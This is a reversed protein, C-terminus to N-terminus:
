YKVIRQSLRRGDAHKVMLIYTGQPLHGISIRETIQNVSQRHLRQGQLSYLTLETKGLYEPEIEINVFDSAPNPYVKITQPDLLDEAADPNEEVEEYITIDQICGWFTKGNSFDSVSFNKDGFDALDFSVECAQLSDIFLWAKQSDRSYSLTFHHWENPTYTVGCNLINANNYKVEITSDAKLYVGLWRGLNGGMIVPQEIAVPTNFRGSIAFRDFDLESLTPTAINSTSYRGDSCAGGVLFSNELKVPDYNGTADETDTLLPYHAIVSGLTDADYIKLDQITGRFTQGSSFNTVSFNRDEGHNITFAENVIQVEDFYVKGVSGNYSMTVKHWDGPKYKTTTNVTIGNNYRMSVTTDNNLFFGMWRFLNGGVLVPKHQINGAKFKFSVAFNNLDLSDIKPTGINSGYEPLGNGLYIGNAYAGGIFTTNILNMNNQNGTVDEGNFLMPFHALLSDGTHSDYIKLDRIVGKYTKGRSQDTVQLAADGGHIISFPHSIIEVGDYFLKGETSDYTVVIEHWKNLEYKVTSSAFFSNNYKLALTSDPRLYAGIWRYIPGGMIVPADQYTNTKFWVSFKFSNFNLGNAGAVARSGNISVSTIRLGTTYMGRDLPALTTIISDYNGITDNTNELLPYVASAKLDEFQGFVFSVQFILFLITLFIIHHNNTNVKNM